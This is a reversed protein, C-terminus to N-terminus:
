DKIRFDRFYLTCVDGAIRFIQMEVLNNNHFILIFKGNVDKYMRIVLKEYLSYGRKDKNMIMFFYIITM